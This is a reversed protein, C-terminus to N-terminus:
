LILLIQVKNNYFATVTVDSQHISTLKYSILHLSSYFDTTIICVECHAMVKPVSKLSINDTTMKSMASRTRETSCAIRQVWNINKYTM